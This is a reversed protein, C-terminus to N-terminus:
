KKDKKKKVRSGNWILIGAITNYLIIAVVSLSIMNIFSWNVFTLAYIILALVEPVVLAIGLYFRAKNEIEFKNKQEMQKKGGKM